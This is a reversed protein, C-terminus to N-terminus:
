TRVARSTSSPPASATSTASFSKAARLSRDADRGRDRRIMLHAENPGGATIVRTPEGATHSDVIKVKRSKSETMSFSREFTRM